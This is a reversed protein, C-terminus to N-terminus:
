RLVLKIIIFVVFIVVAVTICGGITIGGIGLGTVANLLTTLGEGIGNFINKLANNNEMAEEHELERQDYQEQLMDYQTQLYELNTKATSLESNSKTLEASLDNKENELQTKEKQLTSIQSNLNAKETNLAEVQSELRSVRLTLDEVEAALEAITNSASAHFEDYEGQLDNLQSKLSTIQANLESKQTNLDRIQGELAAKQSELSGVQAELESITNSASAYFTELEKIREIYEANQTELRSVSLTLNEVETALEAITDSASAHFDDYEVQLDNYQDELYAVQSNLGDITTKQSKVDKALKKTYEEALKIDPMIQILVYITDSSSANAVKFDILLFREALNLRDHFKAPIFGKYADSCISNYSTVTSYGLSDTQYHSGNDIDFPGFSWYASEGNFKNTFFNEDFSYHVKFCSNYEFDGQLMYTTNATKYLDQDMGYLPLSRGYLKYFISGDSYLGDMKDVVNNNLDLAFSSVALSSVLTAVLCVCVIVKTLIKNKKKM